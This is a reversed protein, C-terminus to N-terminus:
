ILESSAVSVGIARVGGAVHCCISLPLRYLEIDADPYRSRAEELWAEAPEVSGSYALDICMKMGSFRTSLDNDIADLMTQSARKMGRVKAFADLKGGQIQLVPNIGLVTAIAAGASTVRGSKRLLELTQVALYISSEGASASLKSAIEEASLGQEAMAAADLVSRRLSISIRRNDVVIVRGNYDEALAMASQCSGSLASSMPIHILKEHDKLAKDWIKTVSEPAPQSTSVTSGAALKEFFADYGIDVGEFYEKGDIIIPMPLMYVGLAEAEEFTMSSNTDTVIATKKM